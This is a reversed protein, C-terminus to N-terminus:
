LSNSPVVRRRSHAMCGALRTCFGFPFGEPQWAGCSAVLAGNIRRGRRCIGHKKGPFSSVLRFLPEFLYSVPFDPGLVGVIKAM